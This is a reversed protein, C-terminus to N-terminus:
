RRGGFREAQYDRWTKYRRHQARLARALEGVILGIGAGAVLLLGTEIANSM